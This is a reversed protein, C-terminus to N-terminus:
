KFKKNLYYLSTLGIIVIFWFSIFRDLLLMSSSIAAPIGLILLGSIIGGEVLGLGGPLWPISSFLIELVWVTLILTFPVPFNIALFIFYIRLFELFRSFLSLSFIKLFLERSHLLNKLSLSINKGSIKKNKFFRQVYKRIFYEIKNKDLLIRFSFFFGAGLIVFLIFSGYLFNTSIFKSTSLFVILILLPVYFSILEVTIEIIVAATSKTVPIKNKTLYYIKLPEGGMRIIPTLLNVAMGSILIKFLKGFKLNYKQTSLIIKLRWAHLFIICVQILLALLFYGLNANLLINIVEIGGFFFIVGFFLLIGLVIGFLKKM